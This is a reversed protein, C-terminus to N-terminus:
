IHTYAPCVRKGRNMVGTGGYSSRLHIIFREPTNSGCSEPWAGADEGIEDLGVLM